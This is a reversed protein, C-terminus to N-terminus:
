AKDQIEKVLDAIIADVPMAGLDGKKRSRLAATGDEAEKDGLVLLERLQSLIKEDTLNIVLKMEM